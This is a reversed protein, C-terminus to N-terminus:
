VRRMANHVGRHKHRHPRLCRYFSQTSGVQYGAPRGDNKAVGIMETQTRTMLQNLTEAAQVAKHGPWVRNKGVAAAILHHAKTRQCSDSFFAYAKLRM